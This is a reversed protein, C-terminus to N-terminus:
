KKDGSKMDEYLSQLEAIVAPMQHASLLVISDEGGVPDSQKIGIYGGDTPYIETEYAPPLIVGEGVPIPCCAERWNRSDDRSQNSLGAEAARSDSSGVTLLRVFSAGLPTDSVEWARPLPLHIRKPEHASEQDPDLTSGCLRSSPM